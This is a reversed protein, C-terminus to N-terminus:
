HSRTFRRVGGETTGHVIGRDALVQLHADVELVATMQHVVDLQELRRQHRTWPLATAIQMATEHGAGVLDLIEQLRQDHHAVLERVRAHVSGGAPGHAPLMTADPRRLLKDLSDLYDGLPNPAPAGENGIAPTAVSLVHDGTFLVGLADLAFVMHGRTHGPTAIAELEGGDVPVRDGDLLWRDPPGYAIDQEYEELPRRQVAAALDAAGGARLLEIMRPYLGEAPDFGLINARDGDGIQLRCALDRRLEAAMTYHDWHMHTILFTDVDELGHGLEALGKELAARTEASQWGSDIVVLGDPGEMVYVNVAPLGALPLPLPIRHVGEAVPHVGPQTWHPTRPNAPV